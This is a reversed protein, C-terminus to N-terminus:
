LPWAPPPTETEHLPLTPEISFWGRGHSWTSLDDVYGHTQVGVNAKYSDWFSYLLLVPRLLCKFLSYSFFPPPPSFGDRLDLLCLSGWGYLIFRVLFTGLCETIM